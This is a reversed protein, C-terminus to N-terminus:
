FLFCRRAAPKIIDENPSIYGTMDLFCEDISFREVKPTYELFLKYLKNSYERYVDFEGPVVVVSPCKRRAQYIPEATKIGFKKAVNSKAVVIGHRTAEDGGIVSPINRLDLSDGNKLREVATWSLFANNVDIHLFLREM